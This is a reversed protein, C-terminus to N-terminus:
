FSFSHRRLKCVFRIEDQTLPYDRVGDFVPTIWGRWMVGDNILQRVNGAPYRHALGSM